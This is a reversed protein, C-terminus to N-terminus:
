VTDRGNINEILEITQYALYLGIRVEADNLDLDFLERVRNVRYSVTNKHIFLEDATGQLSRSNKIYCYITKFYETGHVKDYDYLKQESKRIYLPLSLDKWEYLIMDYTRFEDYFCIVKSIKLQNVLYEARKVQDYYRKMNSFDYFPDSIIVKIGQEIFNEQRSMIKSYLADKYESFDVILLVSNKYYSFVCLPFIIRLVNYLPAMQYDTMKYKELSLLILYYQSKERLGSNLIYERLIQDSGPIEEIANILADWTSHYIDQGSKLATFAIIKSLLKSAMELLEVKAEDFVNTSEISLLYGVPKKDVFMKSICRRMPSMMCGALVPSTEKQISNIESLQNFQSVFEYSCYGTEISEMWQLDECNKHNSSCIVRYGNDIVMLPNEILEAASDLVSQLTSDLLYADILKQSKELVEEQITLYERCKEYLEDISTDGPFIVVCNNGCNMQKLDYEEDNILFLTINDMSFFRYVVSSYNGIYITNKKFITNESFYSVKKTLFENKIVSVIRPEFLKLYLLWGKIKSM